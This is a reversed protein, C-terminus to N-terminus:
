GLGLYRFLGGVQAAAGVYVPEAEVDINETMPLDSDSDGYIRDMNPLLEVSWKM